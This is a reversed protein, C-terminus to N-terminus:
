PLPAACIGPGNVGGDVICVGNACQCNSPCPCPQLCIGSCDGAPTLNLCTTSPDRACVLGNGCARDMHAAIVGCSDGVRDTGACALALLLPLFRRVSM